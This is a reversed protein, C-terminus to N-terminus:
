NAAPAFFLDKRLVVAVIALIVWVVANILMLAPEHITRMFLLGGLNIGFHFITALLVSFQYEKTLAYIVVSYALIVLVLLGIVLPGDGFFGVHIPFWLLGVVLASVLGGLHGDLKKQLYGRWGIEEGLAGFPMWLIALPLSGGAAGAVSPKIQLISSILFIVLAAGIPIAAALLYHRLPTKKDLFTMKFGDKRFILLMLLGAIGPALQPIVLEPPIQTAEQIGGFLMLFFATLVVYVLLRLFM